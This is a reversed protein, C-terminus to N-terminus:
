GGLHTIDEVKIQFNEGKTRDLYLYVINNKIIFLITSINDFTQNNLVISFLNSASYNITKQMNEADKFLVCGRFLTNDDEFISLLDLFEM